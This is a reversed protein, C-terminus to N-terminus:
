FCDRKDYVVDFIANESAIILDKMDLYDVDCNISYCCFGKKFEKKYATIFDEMIEQQNSERALKYYTKLNKRTEDSFFNIGKQLFSYEVKKIRELEANIDM